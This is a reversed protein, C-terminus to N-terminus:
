TTERIVIDLGITTTKIPDKGNLIDILLNVSVKGLEDLATNLSTLRPTVVDCYISNNIGVISVEEPIKKGISSLARIAGVAILDESCIFADINKDRYLAKMASLYGDEVTPESDIIILEEEKHGLELMKNIYGHKKREGSATRPKQIYAIKRKGKSYLLEVCKSVGNLEDIVINWMNNCEAFGNLLITPNKPFNKEISNIVDTKQYLSGVFIIAEVKRNALIKICNDIQEINSGSNLIIGCYGIEALKEEIEYTISTHHGMRIDELIIGVLKSAGNVLIRANQDPIFNHKKLIENIKDKTEKKVKVKGTIVRSVTSASVGAEKAIDYITM